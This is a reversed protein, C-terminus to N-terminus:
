KTSKDKLSKLKESMLEIIQEKDVLQKRLSELEKENHLKMVYRFIVENIIGEKSISSNNNDLDIFKGKIDTGIFNLASLIENKYQDLGNAKIETEIM